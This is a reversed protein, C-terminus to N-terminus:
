AEIGVDGSAPPVGIHLSVALRQILSPDPDSGETELSVLWHSQRPWWGKRAVADPYSDRIRANPRVKPRVSGMGIAPGPATALSRSM